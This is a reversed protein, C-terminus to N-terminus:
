SRKMSQLRWYTLSRWAWEFPGFKFRKLWWRSVILQFAWIGLIILWQEARGLTGFMGFGHGYFIFTAIISQMLYNTMATRGVPALWERLTAAFRSKCLLMVLGIYGLAMPLSGLFNFQSGLFFSYECSWDHAYNQVLGIIGFTLGLGLGIVMMKTYFKKSREATLVNTKFLAMGILMLGTIQWGFGLVFYVTELFFAGTARAPMQELWSGQYATTEAAIAQASPLWQECTRAIEESPWFPMTFGSFPQDCSQHCFIRGGM